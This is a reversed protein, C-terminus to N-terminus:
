IPNSFFCPMRCRWRRRIALVTLLELDEDSFESGQRKNMAELVGIVKDRIILPVALISRTVFGSQEDTRRYAHRPDKSVDQVVLSEGTQVVQGAVSGEMPVVISRVGQLNTAAEFYLQGSKRDVLLISGAETQTLERAASVICYLLPRLDLMAALSRNIELLGELREIRDKMQQETSQGDMM